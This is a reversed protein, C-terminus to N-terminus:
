KMTSTKDDDDITMTTVPLQNDDLAGATIMPVMPEMGNKLIWLNEMPDM